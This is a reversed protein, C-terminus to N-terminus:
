NIRYLHYLDLIKFSEDNGLPRPVETEPSVIFSCGNSEAEKTAYKVVTKPDRCLVYEYHVGTHSLYTICHSCVDGVTKGKHRGNSSSM